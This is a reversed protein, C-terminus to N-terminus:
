RANGWKYELLIRLGAAVPVALVFGIAGALSGGALVAFLVIVPHLKTLRGLLQPIVFYDELMRLAFYILGILIALSTPDLGFRNEETLFATLAALSGASWPGILPILELFGSIVGLILAFRVGLITLVIGTAASMIIVLLIQGRLYGGLSWNVKDLLAVFDKRAVKEKLTQLWREGDKLFYFSAVLFILFKILVAVVGTFIPLLSGELRQATEGLATIADSAVGRLSITKGAFEWTPLKQITSEALKSIDGTRALDKAEQFLQGGLWATVYGIIAFIVVYVLIIALTKSVKAKRAILNVVPNFIYAFIAALIFPTLIGRVLYLFVLIIIAIFIYFSSKNM